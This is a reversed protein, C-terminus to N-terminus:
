TKKNLKAMKTLIYQKHMFRKEELAEKYIWEDPKENKEACRIVEAFFKISVQVPHLLLEPMENSDNYFQRISQLASLASEYWGLEIYNMMYHFRVNIKEIIDIMKVKSLYDLSEEFKELKFSLIGRAYNESDFQQDKALYKVYENLFNEAWDYKQLTIASTFIDKFTGINFAHLNDDPYINLSTMLEAYQIVDEYYNKNRQIMNSLVLHIMRILYQNQDLKKVKHLISLMENKFELYKEDDIEHTQYYNFLYHMKLYPTYEHNISKFYDIIKETDISSAVVKLIPNENMKYMKHNMVDYFSLQLINTLFFIILKEILEIDCKLYEPSGHLRMFGLNHAHHVNLRYLYHFRDAISLLGDDHENLSKAIVKESIKNLNRETLGFTIYIDLEQKNRSIEEYGIFKKLLNSFESYLNKIRKESYAESPYLRKYVREFSLSDEKFDPYSKVVLNYIKDLTRSANFYPSKLFEGFRKLETKSLSKLIEITQNTLM